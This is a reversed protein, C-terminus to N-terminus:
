RLLARMANFASYIRAVDDRLAAYEESTPADGAAAAAQPNMPLGSLLAQLHKIRAAGDNANGREGTLIEVKEKVQQFERADQSPQRIVQRM